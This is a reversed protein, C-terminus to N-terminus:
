AASTTCTSWRTSAFSCLTKSAKLGMTKYVERWRACEQAALARHAESQLQQLTEQVWGDIAAAAAAAQDIGSAVLVGAGYAPHQRRIEDSLIVKNALLNM